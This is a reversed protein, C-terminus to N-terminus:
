DSVPVNCDNQRDVARNLKGNNNFAGTYKLVELLDYEQKKQSLM